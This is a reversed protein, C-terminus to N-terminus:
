QLVKAASEETAKWKKFVELSEDRFATEMPIKRKERPLKLENYMDADDFGAEKADDHTAAYYVKDIHAWYVAGMCMPCPECSTYLECGDLHWTGLKKAASRIALIEAHATPDITPTVQNSEEAIIEGIEDAKVVKNLEIKESKDDSDKDGKIFDPLEYPTLEVDEVVDDTTEDEIITGASVPNFTSALIMILCIYSVVKKIKM